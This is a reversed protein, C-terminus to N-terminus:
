CSRSRDFDEYLRDHLVSIAIHWKSTIATRFHKYTRTRSLLVKVLCAMEIESPVSPTQWDLFTYEKHGFSVLVPVLRHIPIVPSSEVMSSAHRGSDLHDCCSKLSPMEREWRVTAALITQLMTTALKARPVRVEASAKTGLRLPAPSSSRNIFVDWASLPM